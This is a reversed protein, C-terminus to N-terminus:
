EEDSKNILEQVQRASPKVWNKVLGTDIDIELILYDGYHEGPMISWVYGDEQEFITEGDQDLISACFEDRVKCYISITKAEVKVDKKITLEM